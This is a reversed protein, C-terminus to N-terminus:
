TAEPKVWLEDVSGDRSILLIKEFPHNASFMNMGGRYTEVDALPYGNRLALWIPHDFKLARCKEGKATIRAELICWATTLLDDLPLSSRVILGTVDKAGDNSISIEIENGSFTERVSQANPHSLLDRIRAKLPGKVARKNLFPYKCVLIVGRGDPIEDRLEDKLEDALRAPSMIDSAWSVAGGRGDPRSEMLTSIEVAVERNNVTLYADPPDQGCRWTGSYTKSVVDMVFEEDERQGTM